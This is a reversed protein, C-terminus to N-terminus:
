EEFNLGLNTEDLMNAQWEVIHEHEFEGCFTREVTMIGCTDILFKAAKDELMVDCMTHSDQNWYKLLWVGLPQFHHLVDYSPSLLLEGNQIPVRHVVDKRVYNDHAM